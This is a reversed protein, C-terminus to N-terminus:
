SSNILIYDGGFLPPAFLQRKGGKEGGKRKREGEVGDATDLYSQALTSIHADHLFITLAMTKTM